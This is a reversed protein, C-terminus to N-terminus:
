PKLHRKVVAPVGAVLTNEPVDHTVVSGAAVVCGNGIHVGGLIVSHAGLWCGNGVEIPKAYGEGARRAPHGLAHGGPIFAVRPGIDCQDGLIIAAQLHSHFEVGPSLWTGQGLTVTGRGYFWGRGCVSVGPQANIGALKLCFLRFAFFRTPPLVWLLLNVLHRIM